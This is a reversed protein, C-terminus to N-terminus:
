KVVEAKVVENRNCKVTFSNGCEPCKVTHTGKKLPLKLVQHCKLCRKYLAKNYNKIINKYLKFKKKPYSIIKVYIANEKRRQKVNKSIVRFILIAISLVLALSLFINNIFIDMITLIAIVVLNFNFLDDFGNRGPMSRNILDKYSM